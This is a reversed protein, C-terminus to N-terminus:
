AIALDKRLLENALKVAPMKRIRSLRQLGRLITEEVEIEFHRRELRVVAKVPVLHESYNAADHTDWFAGAEDLTQFSEPLKDQQKGTKKM